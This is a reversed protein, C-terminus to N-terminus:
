SLKLSAFNTNSSTFNDYFEKAMGISQSGQGPFIFANEIM